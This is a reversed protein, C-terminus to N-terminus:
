IIMEILAFFNLICEHYFESYSLTSPFHQLIIFDVHSSSMALVTNFPLFSSANGTFDPVLHCQGSESNISCLAPLQLHLWKDLSIFLFCVFLFSSTFNDSNAYAKIIYLSFGLFEVLISVSSIFSNLLTKPYLIFMYIVASKICLYRIGQYLLLFLRM